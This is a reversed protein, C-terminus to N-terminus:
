LCNNVFYVAANLAGTVATSTFTAGSIAQVESEGATGTKKLTLPLTGNKGPFQDRFQPEKAKMGLGPTENITLFGLGTIKGDATIGVSIQVAGGYGENSTATVLHGIVNGADDVAELCDDVTVKGYGLSAIAEASQAAKETLEPNEAFSSAEPYVERYTANAKEARVSAILPKTVENTLGLAVGAVLTILFLILADKLIAKMNM